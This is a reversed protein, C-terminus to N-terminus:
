LKGEQEGRLKDRNAYVFDGLLRAQVLVVGLVLFHRIIQTAIPIPFFRQVFAGLSDMGFALLQLMCLLAFLFAYAKPVRWVLRLGFSPDVLFLVSRTCLAALVALPLYTTTAALVLYAWLGPRRFLEMPKAMYRYIFAKLGVAYHAHFLILGWYWTGVVLLQLMPHIFGNWIDHF